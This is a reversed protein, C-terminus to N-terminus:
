RCDSFSCLDARNRSWAGLTVTASHNLRIDTSCGVHTRNGGTVGNNTPLYSLQCLLPNQNWRNETRNRAEGGNRSLDIPLDAPESGAPELNSGQDRFWKSHPRREVPCSVASRVCLRSPEFGEARVMKPRDSLRVPCMGGFSAIRTRIGAPRGLQARYRQPLGPQDGSLWREVTDEVNTPAGLRLAPHHLLLHTSESVGM